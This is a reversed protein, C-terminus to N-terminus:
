QGGDVLENLTEKWNTNRIRDVRSMNELCNYWNADDGPLLMHAMIENVHKHNIKGLYDTAKGKLNTPLNRIDFYKPEHLRNQLSVEVPAPMTNAWDIIDRIYFVNLISITPQIVVRFTDCETMFRRINADISSWTSGYRIYEAQPGVADISPMMIGKFNKLMEIWKHNFAQFNSNFELTVTKNYGNDVLRKLVTFAPKILSPEGGTFYIRSRPSIKEVLDDIDKLSYPSVLDFKSVKKLIDVYHEQHDPNSRVEDLIASSSKPGCTICLMNCRNSLRLDVISYEANQYDDLSNKSLWSDNERTRKSMFGNRDNWECRGCSKPYEGKLFKDKVTKLYESSEYKSIDGRYNETNDMWCCPRVGGSPTTALGTWPMICFSKSITDTLGM